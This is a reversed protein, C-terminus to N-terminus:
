LSLYASSAPFHLRRVNQNGPEAPLAHQEGSFEEGILSQQFVLLDRPQGGVAGFHAAARGAARHDDGIGRNAARQNRMGINQDGHVQRRQIAKLVRNHGAAHNEVIGRQDLARYLARIHLREANRRRLQGVFRAHGRQRVHDHHALHEPFTAQERM